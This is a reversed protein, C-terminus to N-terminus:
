NVRVFSMPELRISNVTVPKDNYNFYILISNDYESAYVGSQVPYNNTLRAGALSGLVKDAKLYNDAADSLQSSYYYKENIESDEDVGTCIWEYSPMAGYEVSKMFAAKSDSSLNIPTLSYNVLGHLVFEVFPIQRYGDGEPYGTSRPLNIVYDAYKLSYFNGTDVMIKHNNSLVSLESSIINSAKNRSVTESTNYDSYLYKGADNICYGNFGYDGVRNIFRTVRGDLGSYSTMYVTKFKTYRALGESARSGFYDGDIGVARKLGAIDSPANASVLSVDLFMSFKQTKIYDSLEAFDKKSGLSSIPKASSIDSQTNAGTLMNAYNLTISNVNKAKLMELLDQTQEYTSLKKYSYASSRAAAGRVTLMFPYHESDSLMESSLFGERILMERYATALGLYDANKGSLFRYCINIDGSYSAGLLETGQSAKRETIEFSAGVRNFDSSSGKKYSSIKSITDGSLIIGLFANDASKVGFAAFLSSVGDSASDANEDRLAPNKGYTNFHLEDYDSSKSNLNLLTGNADPLLFYDGDAPNVSAGFYNLLSIKELTFGGNIKIDSCNIKSYFAGDKLSFSVPVSIYLSTGDLSDFSKQATEKDLAMDYTIQIGDENVKYSASEFAVSSDQSNLVYSQAGKSIKVELVSADCNQPVSEGAPLAFWLKGTATDKIVPSFSGKDFYLELLGSKAILMLGDKISIHNKRDSYEASNEQAEGVSLSVVQKASKCSSLCLLLLVSVLILSICKKSNVNDTFRM